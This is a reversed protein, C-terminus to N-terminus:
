PILGKSFMVHTGRAGTIRREANQDDKLRLEDAFIGACNVVVKAKVNFKKNKLKDYLV